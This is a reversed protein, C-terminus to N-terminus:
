LNHTMSKESGKIDRQFSCSIFTQNKYTQITGPIIGIRDASITESRGKSYHSLMIIEGDEKKSCYYIDDNAMGTDASFGIGIWDNSETSKALTIQVGTVLREILINFCNRQHIKCHKPQSVCAVGTRFPFNRYQIICYESNTVKYVVVCHRIYYTYYPISRRLISVDFNPYKM